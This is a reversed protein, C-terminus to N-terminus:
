VVGNMQVGQEDQELVTLMKRAREIREKTLIYSKPIDGNQVMQSQVTSLEQGSDAGLVMDVVARGCLTGNPM